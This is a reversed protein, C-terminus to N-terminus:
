RASGVRQMPFAMERRLIQEKREAGWRYEGATGDSRVVRHCPIVLALRNRACASAVARVARPAGIAQAVQAYTRTEGPPITRLAEWVRRQLPTGHLDLAGPDEDTREGALSARVRELWGMLPDDTALTGSSVRERTAEPYEEGLAQEVQVVDDGLMVACLGRDSAAVLVTGVATSAVVYRLRVGRGGKRYEAPTMGLHAEAAEYARSSAGYGADFTARSVTAGARLSARFREARLAAQYRRPSVGVIRTFNRQLHHPSLGALTALTDLTAPEDPHEDLWRRAREVAQEVRPTPQHTTTRTRRRSMALVTM